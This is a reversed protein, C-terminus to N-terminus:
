EEYFIVVAAGDHGAGTTNINYDGYGGNQGGRGYEKTNIIFGAGGPYVAQGAGGTPYYGTSGDNGNLMKLNSLGEPIASPIGGYGKEGSQGGDGQGDLGGTGGTATLTVSGSSLVTNGGNARYTKVGAGVVLNLVSLKELEPKTFLKRIYAGGGGSGATGWYNNWINPQHFHGKGASGGAGILVVECASVNQPISIQYEGANYVTFRMKAPDRSIFCLKGNRCLTYKGDLMGTQM